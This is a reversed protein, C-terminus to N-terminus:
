YLKTDRKDVKERYYLWDLLKQYISFEREQEFARQIEREREVYALLSDFRVCTRIWAFRLTRLQHVKNGVAEPQCAPM